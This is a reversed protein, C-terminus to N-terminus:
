DAIEIKIVDYVKGRQMLDFVRKVFGYKKTVLANIRADEQAPLITARGTVWPGTLAGRANCPAVRVVPNNRVRKVKGANAVTRVYLAGNEEVFWVPTLMPQGSKRLTELNIYTEKALQKITM